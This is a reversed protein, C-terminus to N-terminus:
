QIVQIMKERQRADPYKGIGAKLNDLLHTVKSTGPIVCTVAPNALIFKLFFQAWSTCDFESAWVPLQKGKVTSFLAGEEFPRNIIVAVNLEQALPILKEEAHRDM